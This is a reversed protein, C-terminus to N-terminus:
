HAYIYSMEVSKVAQNSGDIPGLFLITDNVDVNGAYLANPRIKDLDIDDHEIYHIM